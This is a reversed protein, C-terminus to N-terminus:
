RRCTRAYAQRFDGTCGSKPTCFLKEIKSYTMIGSQPQCNVIMEVIPGRDTITEVLPARDNGIRYEIYPRPLDPSLKIQGQEIRKVADGVINTPSAMGIFAFNLVIALRVASIRYAM